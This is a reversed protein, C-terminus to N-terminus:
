GAFNGRDEVLIPNIQTDSSTEKDLFVTIVHGLRTGQALPRNPGLELLKGTLVRSLTM